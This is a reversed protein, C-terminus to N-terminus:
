QFNKPREGKEAADIIAKIRKEKTEPRKASTVWYLMGKKISKSQSNYFERAKVNVAFAKELEEPIILAEIADLISWSKDRKAKEIVVLGSETMRDEKILRAVKDKNIKSWNSGERRPSYRQKYQVDDIPYKVGDIWGFCLAEDVAESWSLNPNPASKKIFILWVANTLQHNKELWDRWESADKPCFTDDPVNKM